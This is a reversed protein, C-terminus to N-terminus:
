TCKLQIKTNQDEVNGFAPSSQQHIMGLCQREYGGKKLEVFPLDTKKLVQPLKKGSKLQCHAQSNM